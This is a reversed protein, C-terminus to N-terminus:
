GFTAGGAVAGDDGREYISEARLKVFLESQRSGVASLQFRGKLATVHYDWWGRKFRGSGTRSMYDPQKEERASEHEEVRLRCLGTV